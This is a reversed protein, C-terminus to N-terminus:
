AAVRLMARGPRETMPDHPAPERERRLSSATSVQQILDTRLTAISHRFKFMVKVVFCVFVMSTVILSSGLIRHQKM